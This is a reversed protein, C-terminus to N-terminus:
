TNRLSEFFVPLNYRDELVTQVSKDSSVLAEILEFLHCLERDDPDKLWSKIPIGNSPNMAVSLPSNDVLVIRDMPRGLARLDKFYLGNADSVCHQRYLRHHILTQDPDLVSLVEDAYAQTGATFVVVECHDLKAILRLVEAVHPRFQVLCLARSGPFSFIHDPKEQHQDSSGSDYGAGDIVTSHVLTEDLDLVLTLRTGRRMPPLFPDRPLAHGDDSATERWAAEPPYFYTLAQLSNRLSPTIQELEPLTALDLPYMKVRWDWMQEVDAGSPAEPLQQRFPNRVDDRPRKFNISCWACFIGSVCLGLLVGHTPAAGNGSRGGNEVDAAEYVEHPHRLRAPDVPEPEAVSLSVEVVDSKVIGPLAAVGVKELLIVRASM